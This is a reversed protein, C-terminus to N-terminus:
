QWKHLKIFKKLEKEEIHIESFKGGEKGRDLILIMLGKQNAEEDNIYFFQVPRKSTLRGDKNYKEYSAWTEIKKRM